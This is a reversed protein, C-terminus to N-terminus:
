NTSHFCLDIGQLFRIFGIMTSVFIIKEANTFLFEFIDDNKNWSSSVLISQVYYLDSDNFSALTKISSVNPRNLLCPEAISAYSFSASSSIKHELGDNIEHEFIQM